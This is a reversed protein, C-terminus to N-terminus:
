IFSELKKAFWERLRHVKGRSKWKEADLSHATTKMENFLKNLDAVMQEDTFSVASEEQYNFSRPILNISGVMGLKDDISLAKGHNMKPLLFINVGAKLTLEFYTRGILELLQLDPRLPMFINVKVGRKKALALARLFKRDPAYYPTLLNISEQAMTIAKVYLRKMKSIQAVTPSHVIFKIKQKWQPIDVEWKPHLYKKVSRRRGGASVYSKAFGRLLPRAAVGTIKLYLDDWNKTKWDINVGGLFVIQEDVILVKRHNRYLLRNIWNTIKWEPHIRNFKLVEVGAEKMYKEAEESFQASGFGDIIIKVEVGSRSKDALAQLFKNGISDDIFIYVEWFINKQANVIAEYMSDWAEATTKYFQYSLQDEM